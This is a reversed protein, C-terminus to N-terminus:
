MEVITKFGGYIMRKPDFPMQSMDKSLRPDAFVKKLVADRDARSKYVIWSFAVVEGDQLKVARPFSTVKGPPVDDAICEVYELAGHELWIKGAKKALKKYDAIRNEPVAVVFGDVYTMHDEGQRPRLATQM